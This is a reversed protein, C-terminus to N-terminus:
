GRHLVLLPKGISGDGAPPMADHPNGPVCRDQAVTGERREQREVAVAALNITADVLECRDDEQFEVYRVTLSRGALKVEAPGQSDAGYQAACDTALLTRQAGNTLWYERRECKGEDRDTGPAAIVAKVLRAHPLGEISESSDVVCNPRNDCPGDVASHQATAQPTVVSTGSSAALPAANCGASPPLGVALCAIVGLPRLHM